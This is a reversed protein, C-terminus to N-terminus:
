ANRSVCVLRGPEAAGGLARAAATGHDLWREISRELDVGASPVPAVIVIGDLADDFSPAAGAPAASARAGRAVLGDVLGDVLPDDHDGVVLWAGRRDNPSPPDSPQWSPIWFVDDLDDIRRPREATAAPAVGGHETAVAAATPSIGAYGAGPEIWFRERQFPYTPLRLRRRGTGAFRELDVDVGAGWLRAFALLSYATDDVVQNPHRLGPIVAAAEADARRAFSSLAHGPGLEALVMPGDALVTVICDAFRVTHRLHDVWYQPDTAQEATIWTGTLNSVYPMSPASLSVKRVADLFAPLIPDLLSSHGAAVIPILTATVDEPLSANLAEIDATRGAVVCEDRTNVTALSLSSGLLPVVDAEPLPVALMAADEGLGEMLQSRTIVLSLADEFSLVGALHAAVYEGLSHGVFAAPAVGWAMWQRALAVSTIFVAPLSAGPHRLAADDGDVAVLRDIDLGITDRVIDFGHRLTAHFVDFRDDLGAAMGVYQSGGGPFMFAVRPADDAAQEVATRGRDKGRLQVIADAVDTAVVIRRHRMARRGTILTAAVDALNTDPNAELHVALRESADSVSKPDRGSIVLVQEPVAPESAALEPAEEVIVHANTGGVGLSSIGARRPGDTEWPAAEGSLVFPTREIDLLPSPGRYNAMPPLTRHRLAQVVKILSATGAATDLHGINPKTSVLRCFGSDNTSTRFAETLAAVEIPDGVATGTGHAELLTISRADIGAVALAEKVVDAHGDVSPALYGVKRAGDNNVASGKIVALIPDGGDVADQLRRLAVVGAGSALVTGASDVDFARCVGTPSLIEGERYEYGRAHPVEITAGGAVAMDCEFGLLSQVALHVAVLSTSCATQVNVSPGRLDLKYSATTALFDKDNGTHRLLFWGVQEVLQPNTLLNNLMYLNAGCGAFVGITGAFREPVHGASELAEWVCELFH